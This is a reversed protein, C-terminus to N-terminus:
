LKGGCERCFRDGSQVAGGCNPCAAGKGSLTGQIEELRAKLADVEQLKGLLVDSDTPSGAHTAYLLGGVEMLKGDVKREVAEARARLRAEAVRRQVERRVGYAADATLDGALLVGEYVAALTEYLKRNEM